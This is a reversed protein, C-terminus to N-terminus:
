NNYTWGAGVSVDGPTSAPDVGGHGNDHCSICAVGASQGIATRGFPMTRNLGDLWNSPGSFRTDFYFMKGLAIANPDTAYANSNDAPPVSPPNSLAAVRSLDAESWGCMADSGCFFGGADCGMAAVAALAVAAGVMGWRAAGETRRM